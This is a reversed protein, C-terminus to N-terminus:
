QYQIPFFPGVTNIAVPNLGAVNLLTTGPVFAGASANNIVLGGIVVQLLGSTAQDPINPLIAAAATTGPTGAYTYLTGIQDMTFLWVQWTAGTAPISPGNLAATSTGAAKTSLLGGVVAMIANGTAPAAATLAWNAATLMQTNYLYEFLKELQFAATGDGLALLRKKIALM